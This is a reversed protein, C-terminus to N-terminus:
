HGISECRFRRSRVRSCLVPLLGPIQFPRPQSSCGPENRFKMSSIDKYGLAGVSICRVLNEGDVCEDSGHPSYSCFCSAQSYAEYEQYETKNSEQNANASASVPIVIDRSRHTM